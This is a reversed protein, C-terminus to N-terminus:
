RRSPVTAPELFLPELWYTVFNVNPDRQGPRRCPVAPPCPGQQTQPKEATCVLVDEGIKCGPVGPPPPVQYVFDFTESAPNTHLDLTTYALTLPSRYSLEYEIPTATDKTFFLTKGRPKVNGDGNPFTVEEFWVRDPGSGASVRARVGGATLEDEESSRGPVAARTANRVFTTRLRIGHEKPDIPHEALPIQPLHGSGSSNLEALELGNTLHLFLYKRSFEDRYRSDSKLFTAFAGPANPYSASGPGKWKGLVSSVAFASDLGQSLEVSAMEPTPISYQKICNEWCGHKAEEAWLGVQYIWQRSAIYALVFSRDWNPRSYSDHSM